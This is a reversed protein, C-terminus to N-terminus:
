AGAHQSRAAEVFTNLSANRETQDNLWQLRHEEGVTWNPGPVEACDSAMFDGVVMLRQEVVCPYVTTWQDGVLNINVAEKADRIRVWTTGELVAHNGTVIVGRYRWLDQSLSQGHCVVKGGAAVEDLLVLDQIAKVSGDAMLVKTDHAFCGFVAGIVGGVVAGVPGGVSAGIQAGALAGGIMGVKKQTQQQQGIADKSAQNTADTQKQIDQQTKKAAEQQKLSEQQASLASTIAGADFTGKTVNGFDNFPNSTGGTLQNLADYQAKQEPTVVNSLGINTSNGGKYYAGLDVGSGGAKKIDANQKQLAAFQDPSLGLQQLQAATPNGAKLAAQLSADAAAADAKQKAVQGQLNTVLGSQAKSLDGVAQKGVQQNQAAAAQASADLNTQTQQLNPTLAKTGEAAGTVSSLAPATNQVLFQDFNTGGLSLPKPATNRILQARGGETDALQANDLATQNAKQADAAGQTAAFSTPGKYTGSLFDRFDKDNVSSTAHQAADQVRNADYTNTSKAVQSRFDNAANNTATTADQTSKTIAGGIRDGVNQAGQGNVSLYGSLDNFTGSRNSTPNAAGTQVNGTPSKNGASLSQVQGAPQAPQAQGGSGSGGAPAAGTSIPNGLATAEDDNNAIYAM